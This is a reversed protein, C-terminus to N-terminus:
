SITLAFRRQAQPCLPTFFRFDSALRTSRSARRRKCPATFSITVSESRIHFIFADTPLVPRFWPPANEYPMSHMGIQEADGVRDGNSRPM